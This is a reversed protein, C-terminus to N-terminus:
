HSKPNTIKTGYIVRMYNFKDTNSDTRVLSSALSLLFMKIHTIERLSKYNLSVIQFNNTKFNSSFPVGSVRKDVRMKYILLVLCLSTKLDSASAPQFIMKYQVSTNETNEIAKKGRSQFTTFSTNTRILYGQQFNVKLQFMILHYYCNTKWFTVIM